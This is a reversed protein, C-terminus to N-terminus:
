GRGEKSRAHGRKTEVTQTFGFALALYEPTKPDVHQSLVFDQIYNFLETPIDPHNMLASLLEPFTTTKRNSM